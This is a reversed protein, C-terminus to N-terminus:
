NNKFPHILLRLFSLETKAEVGIKMETTRKTESKSKFISDWFSFITGYNSDTDQEVAKHHVWHISPTVLLKSILMERRPELNLNSHHFASVILVMGEFILISSLPMNLTLIVLARFLASLIIEGFHFRVSSTVDLFEDLHHM